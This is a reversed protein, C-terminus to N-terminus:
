RQCPTLILSNSCSYIRRNLFCSWSSGGGDSPSVRLRAAQLFVNWSKQLLDLAQGIKLKLCIIIELLFKLMKSYLYFLILFGILIYTFKSRM